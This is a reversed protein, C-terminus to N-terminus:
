DWWLSLIVKRNKRLEDSYSGLCECAANGGIWTSEDVSWKKSLQKLKEEKGPNVLIYVTDINWHNEAIDRLKILDIGHSNENYSPRDM